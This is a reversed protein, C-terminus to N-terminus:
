QADFEVMRDIMYRIRQRSDVLQDRDSWEDAGLALSVLCEITAEDVDSEFRWTPIEIPRNDTGRLDVQVFKRGVSDIIYDGPDSWYWQDVDHTWDTLATFSAVSKDEYVKLVPYMPEIDVMHDSKSAM